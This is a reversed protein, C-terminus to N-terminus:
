RCTVNPRRKQCRDCQVKMTVRQEFCLFGCSHDHECLYFCSNTPLHVNTVSIVTSVNENMMSPPIIQCQNCRQEKPISYLCRKNDYCRTQNILNPILEIISQTPSYFRAKQCQRIDNHSLSCNELSVQSLFLDNETSRRVYSRCFCM